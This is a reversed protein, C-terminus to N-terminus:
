SFSEEEIFEIWSQIQQNTFSETQNFQQEYMDQLLLKAHENLLPENSLTSLLRELQQKEDNTLFQEELQHHLLDMLLGMKHQITLSM